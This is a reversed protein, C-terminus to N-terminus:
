SYAWLLLTLFGNNYAHMLICPLLSRTYAYTLAMIMGFITLAIIGGLFQPHIVAFLYGSVFASLWLNGTRQWLVGFLVGRFLFEEVIPALVAAQVFTWLWRGLTPMEEFREGIPNTQESPLASSFSLTILLAVLLFPLYASYGVVSAGVDRWFAGRFWRIQSLAGPQGQVAVLFWLPVAVAVLYGIPSADPIGLNELERVLYGLNLLLLMFIVLAWLLPDTAFPSLSEQLRSPAKWRGQKVQWLFLPVFVLGGFFASGIVMLILGLVAVRGLGSQVLSSEIQQARQNDGAKRWLTAEAVQLLVPSATPQLMQLRQPIQEAPPPQQLTERWLATYWRRQAPTLAESPLQEARNLTELPDSQGLYARVVALAVQAEWTKLDQLPELVTAIGVSPVFRQVVIAYRVTFNIALNENAERLNRSGERTYLQLFVAMNGFISLFFLVILLWWAYRASERM